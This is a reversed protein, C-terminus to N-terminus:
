RPRHDCAAGCPATRRRARHDRWRSDTRQRGCGRVARLRVRFSRVLRDRWVRARTRNDGCGISGGDSHRRQSGFADAGCALMSITVHRHWPNWKRVQYADLGLQDKGCKNDDEINWRLGAATIMATVPTGAQAHVLFYEIEYTGQPYKQTTKPKTSCRILLTHTFGDTPPQDKVTVVHAAWDYYRRGKSGNGCSRREWATTTTKALVLDPRSPIGRLGVLPLDVPVAMVYPVRRDRCFARLTPDRGYGSDTVFWAFAL